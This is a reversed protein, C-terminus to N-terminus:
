ASRHDVLGSGTLAPAPAQKQRNRKDVDHNERDSHKIDTDANVLGNAEREVVDFFYATALIQAKISRCM